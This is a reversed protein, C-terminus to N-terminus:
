AGGEDDGERLADGRANSNMGMGVLKERKMLLLVCDHRHVVVVVVFLLLLLARHVLLGQLEGKGALAGEAVEEELRELAAHADALGEAVGRAGPDAAVGAGLHGRGPGEHHDDARQEGDAVAAGGARAALDVLGDGALLGLDGGDCVREEALVVFFLLHLM